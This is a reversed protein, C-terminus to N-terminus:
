AQLGSSGWFRKMYMYLNSGMWTEGLWYKYLQNKSRLHLVECKDKNLKMKNAQAWSEM